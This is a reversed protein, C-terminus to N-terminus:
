KVGTETTEFSRNGRSDSRETSKWTGRPKLPAARRAAAATNAVGSVAGITASVAPMAKGFETDAFNAENRSGPIKNQELTKQAAQIDVLGPLLAKLQMTQQKTMKVNADALVSQVRKLVTDADINKNQKVLNEITATIQKGNLGLNTIEASMKEINKQMLEINQNISKASAISQETDAQTKPIQTAKLATDTAINRAQENNVNTSSEIQANQAKMNQVEQSNRYSTQATNVAPTMTDQQSAMAGSPSSAGGQSYALMPNLGAAKMDAVGRQYQSNSMREQFDMQNQAQATSASNADRGGMSSLLGGGIAAVAPWWAM